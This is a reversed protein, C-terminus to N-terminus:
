VARPAATVEVICSAAVSPRPVFATLEAQSGMSQLVGRIVGRHLTCVVDPNERVAEAYPCRQLEYRTTAGVESRRPAFGLAALAQAPAERDGSGVTDGIDGALELGLETGAAEVERLHAPTASITRALLRAIMWGTHPQDAEAIARPTVRWLTRPRGVEGVAPEGVILGIRGLRRLQTRVGSPHLGLRFAITAADLPEHAARLLAILRTETPHRRSTIAM